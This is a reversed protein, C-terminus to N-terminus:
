QIERIGRVLLAIEDNLVEIFGQEIHFSQQTGKDTQWSIFGTGLSSVIPAHGKMVEFQGKEGPVKVRSIEGHFIEEEPTLVVLHM